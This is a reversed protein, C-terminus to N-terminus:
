VTTEVAKLHQDGHTFNVNINQTKWIKMYYKSSFKLRLGETNLKFFIFYGYAILIIVLVIIVLLLINNKNM